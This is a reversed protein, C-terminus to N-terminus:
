KISFTKTITKDSFSILESVEVVIDTTTDNLEYAVEVSISAGKKIKKSQNDASYNASDDALICANLGIDNQYVNDEISLMFSAPDDDNKNTFKYNVIVIPKGAYDEALRCSEIVVEYDGLTTSSSNNGSANGAGQSTGDGAGQNGGSDSGGCAVLIVALAILISAGIITLKKM